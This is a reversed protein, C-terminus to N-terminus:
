PKQIAELVKRIIDPRNNRLMLAIRTKGSSSRQSFRAFVGKQDEPKPNKMAVGFQMPTDSAVLDEGGDISGECLCEVKGNIAVLVGGYGDGISLHATDVAVGMVNDQRSDFSPYVCNNTSDYAMIRGVWGQTTPFTKAYFDRAYQEADKGHKRQMMQTFRPEDARRMYVGIIPIEDHNLLMVHKKIFEVLSPQLEQRISSHQQLVRWIGCLTQLLVETSPMRIIGGFEIPQGNRNIVLPSGSDIAFSSNNPELTLAGGKGGIAVAGGDPNIQITKKNGAQVSLATEDAKIFLPAGNHKFKFQYENSSLCLAADSKIEFYKEGDYELVLSAKKSGISVSEASKMQLSKASAITFDNGAALTLSPSTLRLAKAAVVKFENDEATLTLTNGAVGISGGTSPLSGKVIAQPSRGKSTYSVTKQDENVTVTGLILSGAPASGATFTVLPEEVVRTPQEAPVSECLSIAVVLERADLNVQVTQEATVVVLRGEKTLASGPGITIEKKGEVATCGLGELIGPHFAGRLFRALSDRHYTQDRTFDDATLLQGDQYTMREPQKSM